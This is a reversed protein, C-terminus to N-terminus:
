KCSRAYALYDARFEETAVDSVAADLIITGGDLVAVRECCTLALATDHTTMIIAGGDERFGQLTDILHKAADRDLGTFPEDALLIKPQHVLARAIALRQLMGRSLICTRDHRYAQLGVKELLEGTRERCNEVGYLRAYFLMNEAVTLDDYLMSKHSIVGIQSRAQESQRRVDLGYIHVQGSTPALLGGIIRLLTSKGAGNAGCLCLVESASIRLNVGTLVRRADYSKGLDITEIAACQESSNPRTLRM